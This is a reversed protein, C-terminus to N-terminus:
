STKPLCLYKIANSTYFFYNIDMRCLHEITSNVSWHGIFSRFFGTFYIIETKLPIMSPIMMVMGKTFEFHGIATFFLMVCM